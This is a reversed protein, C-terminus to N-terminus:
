GHDSAGACSQASAAIAFRAPAGPRRSDAGIPSGVPQTAGLRALPEPAAVPAATPTAAIPATRDWDWMSRNLPRRSMGDCTPAGKPGLISACGSLILALMAATVMPKM